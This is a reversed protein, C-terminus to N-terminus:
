STPQGLRLLAANYPELFNEKGTIVFGREGTEADVLTRPVESTQDLVEHSHAVEGADANLQFTNRYTLAASVVVLIMVLGGGILVATDFVWGM